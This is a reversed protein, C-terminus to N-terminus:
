SYCIALPLIIEEFTPSTLFWRQAHMLHAFIFPGQNPCSTFSAKIRLLVFPIIYIGMLTSRHCTFIVDCANRGFNFTQILACLICFFCVFLFLSQAANDLLHFLLIKARSNSGCGLLVLLMFLFFLNFISTPNFTHM